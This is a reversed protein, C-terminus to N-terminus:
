NGFHVVSSQSDGGQVDELLDLLSSVDPSGWGFDGGPGEIGWSVHIEDEALGLLLVRMLWSAIERSESHFMAMLNAFLAFNGFPIVGNKHTFNWCCCCSDM